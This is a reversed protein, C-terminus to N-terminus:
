GASRRFRCRKARRNRRGCLPPTSRHANAYRDTAKMLAANMENDYCGGRRRAACASLRGRRRPRIKGAQVIRRHRVHTCGHRVPPRLVIRAQVDDHRRGYHAISWKDIPLLGHSLRGLVRLRNAFHDREATAEETARSRSRKLNFCLGSGKSWEDGRRFSPDMGGNSEPKRRFSPALPAPRPNLELRDRGLAVGGMSPPPVLSCRGLRDEGPAPLRARLEDRRTPIALRWGSSRSYEFRGLCAGTGSRDRASQNQVTGQVDQPAFAARGRLCRDNRWYGGVNSTDTRLRAM